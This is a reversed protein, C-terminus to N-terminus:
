GAFSGRGAPTPSRPSGEPNSRRSSSGTSTAARGDARKVAPPASKKPPRFSWFERGKALDISPRQRSARRGPEPTPAGMKVWAEFDAIVADPLKAKPPMRLEDDRYRIARILLSEDPKGPVIAPGSDGGLRLAERSDLRLGGRLKEATSAHCKGCQTALVPRIKAEFFGGARAHHPRRAHGRGAAEGEAHGDQCGRRRAEAPLVQPIGVLSLFGDRDADIRRFMPEITAAAANRMRPSSRLFDRYEELSLRGDLDADGLIFIREPDFAPFRQTQARRRRAGAFLVSSAGTSM